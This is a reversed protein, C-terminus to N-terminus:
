YRWYTKFPPRAVIFDAFNVGPGTEVVKPQVLGKSIQDLWKMAQVPEYVKFDQNQTLGKRQIMFWRALQCVILRLDDGWVVLPDKYTNRILSLAFSSAASLFRVIDPSPQTGFSWQDNAVFSPAPVGNFFELTFGGFVYPLCGDDNPAFHRAPSFTVGGDDSISFTPLPNPNVVNYQNVEGGSICKVVINYTGIPNSERSLQMNGSGVGIKVPASWLGPRFGGEQFLTDPPAALQWFDEATALLTDM